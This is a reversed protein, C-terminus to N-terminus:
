VPYCELSNSMWVGDVNEWTRSLGSALWKDHDYLDFTTRANDENYIRFEVARANFGYISFDPIDYKFGGGFDEFIYKIKDLDSVTRSNGTSCQAQFKPWDQTNISTVYVDLANLVGAEASGAEPVELPVVSVAPPPQREPVPSPVSDDVAESELTPQAVTISSGGSNSASASNSDSDSDSSGCAALVFMGIVTLAIFIGFSRKTISM